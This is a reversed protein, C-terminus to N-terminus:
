KREKLLWLDNSKMMEAKVANAMLQYGLNNPHFNDGDYLVNNKVTVGDTSQGTSSETSEASSDETDSGKTNNEPLGKYLLDNVPVFFSNRTDETLEKTADNWNDVVTQMEKIDPFNLYYPNYIGLIYIPADKNLKRTETLIKEVNKQYKKIPQNFKKASKATINKQFAQLLDNGGVTLTIMDASELSRQLEEDKNLRKLIQDSREGSVGFNETQVTSLNYENKLGDAVLPVFGGRNTEDGVGQTLSDGLAVFHVTQKYNDSESSTEAKIISGAKPLLLSLCVFTLVATVVPILPTVYKKM